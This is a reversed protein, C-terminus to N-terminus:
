SVGNRADSALGLFCAHEKRFFRVLLSKDKSERKDQCASGADAGFNAFTKQKKEESFFVKRRETM